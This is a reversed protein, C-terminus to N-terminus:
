KLNGVIFFYDRKQLDMSHKLSSIADYMPLVINLNDKKFQNEFFEQKKEMVSEYYPDYHNLELDRHGDKQLKFLAQDHVGSLVRILLSHNKLFYKEREKKDPNKSYHSNEIQNKLNYMLSLEKLSWIPEMQSQQSMFFPCRDIFAFGKGSREFLVNNITSFDVDKEILGILTSSLDYAYNITEEFKEYTLNNVMM